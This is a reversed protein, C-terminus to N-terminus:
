MAGKDIDGHYTPLPNISQYEKINKNHEEIISDILRNGKVKNRLRLQELRCTKCTNRRYQKIKDSYDFFENPLIKNCKICTHSEM